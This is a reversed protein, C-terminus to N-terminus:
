EGKPPEPLPMWHTVKKIEIFGLRDDTKIFGSRNEEFFYIEDFEHLNRVFGIVDVYSTRKSAKICCIYMGNEEPLRDKVSIWDAM